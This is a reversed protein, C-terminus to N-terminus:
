TTTPAPAASSPTSAASPRCRTPPSAACRRRHVPPLKQAVPKSAEVLPDLDDLAGRLNVSTTNFNRM